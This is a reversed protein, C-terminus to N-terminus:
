TLISMRNELPPSKLFARLSALIAEPGFMICFEIHQSHNKVINHSLFIELKM